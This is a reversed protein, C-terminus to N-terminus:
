VSQQCEQLLEYKCRTKPILILIQAIKHCGSHSDFYGMFVINVVM